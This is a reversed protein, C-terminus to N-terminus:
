SGSGMSPLRRNPPDGELLPARTGDHGPAGLRRVHALLADYDFPKAFVHPHDRLSGLTALDGTILIARGRYMTSAQLEQWFALGGHRLGADIILIDPLMPSLMSRADIASEAQFVEHGADELVLQLAKRLASDDDAILVRM